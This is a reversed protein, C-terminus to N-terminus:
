SWSRWRACTEVVRMEFIAIQRVFGDGCRKYLQGNQMGSLSRRGGFRREIRSISIKALV